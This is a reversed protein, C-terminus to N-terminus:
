YKGKRKGAEILVLRLEKETFPKSLFNNMGSQLCLKKDEAMANATLAVIYAPSLHLQDKEYARILGTAQLGDVEPMQMDMLVVDYNNKRFMDFAERGENAVDCELGFQKLTLKAVKQNIINDEALLIKLNQPVYVVQDLTEVTKIKAEKLPLRFWFESGKNIESEFGIEGSMLDVLNKSIALGLGTGGYKRTTSSESQSFEKFLLLKGEDSIGIGSDKIKFLIRVGDGTIDVLEATFEVHGQHTFKIANNVLNMLIQSIRLPDGNLTEPIEDSLRYNFDLGNEDAKFKMLQFVNKLLGKLDFDINELQIQGAEIKSFDLIDNIIQLLNEGSTTIIDLLEQQDSNLPTKQLLKSLGIVGNLPTRIEHTMNALFMSKTRTAVEAKSKAIKLNLNTVEMEALLDDLKKRQLYLDLFVQVKGKLIDPIIPKPIFDVAGTEIGKIINLDSQHIASVFIVPLYKTKKRQRMMELTEYGNMGPMQVDLIVLAYDEKLSHKLAEEGSYARVLDIEFDELIAELSILNELHDDVILIKPRIM